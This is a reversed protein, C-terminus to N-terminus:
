YFLSRTDPYARIKLSIVLSLSKLAVQPARDVTRRLTCRRYIPLRQCSDNQWYYEQEGKSEATYTKHPLQHIIRAQNEKFGDDRFKEVIMKACFVVWIDCMCVAEFSKMDLEEARDQAVPRPRSAAKVKVGAGAHNGVSTEHSPILFVHCRSSPLVKSVREHYCSSWNWTSRVFRLLFPGLPLGGSPRLM